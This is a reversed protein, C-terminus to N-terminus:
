RRLRQHNVRSLFAGMKTPVFKAPIKRSHGGSLAFSACAVSFVARPNFQVIKRVSM